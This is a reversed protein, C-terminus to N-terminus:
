ETRVGASTQENRPLSASAARSVRVTAPLIRPYHLVIRLQDHRRGPRARLGDDRAVRPHHRLVVALVVRQHDVGRAPGHDLVHVAVPVEVERRPDGHHGGAMAMGVHHGRDPRLGLSEEVHAGGIEEVLVDHLQGLPQGPARRPRPGPPREEGVRPRLHHLRRHLQRAQAGAALLDDGEVAGEVAPRVTRQGQGRALRDLPAAVRGEQRLHEVGVVRVAIAARDVAM